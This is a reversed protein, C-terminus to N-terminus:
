KRRHVNQERLKCLHEQTQPQICYHTLFPHELFKKTYTLPKFGNQKRKMERVERQSESFDLSM